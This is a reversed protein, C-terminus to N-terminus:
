SALALSAEAEDILRHQIAYIVLGAINRAGTKTFLNNKHGEVTRKSIFLKEAIEPATYQQCILKLIALERETLSEELTLKPKPSKASIQERMTEVQEELFYYGKQAVTHVIDLLQQPPIGKPVFANVGVRLMYGMFSKNYHSSIVISKITPYQEKMIMAVDAGSLDKMKLDLLVVDPLTSASKLDDLFAEGSLSTFLCTIDPQSGLFDKLLMTFLEEDDALAINIM